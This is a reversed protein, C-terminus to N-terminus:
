SARVPLGAPAPTARPNRNAPAEWLALAMPVALFALLAASIFACSYSGTSLFVGGRVAAGLAAGVQHAFLIWGSLSGVSYRGALPVVVLQGAPMAGGVLGMVLGRRAEFWRAALAAGPSMGIGGAGLGMLVGSSIYVQWLATVRSSLMTGASLAGLVVWAYHLSTQPAKM